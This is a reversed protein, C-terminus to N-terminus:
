SPDLDIQCYAISVIRDIPSSAWCGRALAVRPAWASHRKAHVERPRPSTVHSPVGWAPEIVAARVPLDRSAIARAPFVSLILPLPFPLGVRRLPRYRETVARLATVTPGMVGQLRHQRRTGM